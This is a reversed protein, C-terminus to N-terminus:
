SGLEQEEISSLIPCHRHGAPIFTEKLIFFLKSQVKGVGMADGWGAIGLWWLGRTGVPACGGPLGTAGGGAVEDGADEASPPVRPAQRTGGGQASGSSADGAEGGDGEGRWCGQDPREWKTVAPVTKRQKKNSQLCQWKCGQRPM